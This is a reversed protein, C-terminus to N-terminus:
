RRLENLREEVGQTEAKLDALYAELRAIKEAKSTFRREFRHHKGEHGKGGCSCGQDHCRCRQSREGHCGGGHRERCSCGDHHGHGGCGHQHGEHHHGEHHHCSHGGHRGCDSM